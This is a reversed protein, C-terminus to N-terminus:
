LRLPLRLERGRLVVDQALLTGLACEGALVVVGFLRALVAARATAFHQEPGIFLEIRARPPRAEPRWGIGVGHFGFDVPTIAHHALFHHAAVTAPMEAM